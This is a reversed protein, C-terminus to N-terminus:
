PATNFENLILVSMFPLETSHDVPSAGSTAGMSFYDVALGGAVLFNNNNVLIEKYPGAANHQIFYAYAVDSNKRTVVSVKQLSALTISIAPTFLYTDASVVQQYLPNSSDRNQLASAYAATLLPTVANNDLSWGTNAALAYTLFAVKQSYGTSQTVTAIGLANKGIPNAALNFNGFQATNLNNENTTCDQQSLSQCIVGTYFNDLGSTSGSTLTPYTAVTQADM